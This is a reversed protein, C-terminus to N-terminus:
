LRLFVTAAAATINYQHGRREQSRHTTNDQQLSTCLIHTRLQVSLTKEVVVCGVVLGVFFPVFFPVFFDLLSLLIRTVFSLSWYYYLDFLLYRRVYGSFM